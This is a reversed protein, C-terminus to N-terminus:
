HYVDFVVELKLKQKSIQNVTGKERRHAVKTLNTKKRRKIM